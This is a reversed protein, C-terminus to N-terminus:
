PAPTPKSSTAAAPATANAPVPATSEVKKSAFASTDFIVTHVHGKMQGQSTITDFIMSDGEIQFDARAVKTREESTLIKTDLHYTATKMEVRLNEKPNEAYLHLLVGEAFLTKDTERTLVDAQMFSTARGQEFGPIRVKTNRLGLPIMTAMSDLASSAGAMAAAPTAAGATAAKGKGKGAAKPQAPEAAPLLAPWLMLFIALRSLVKM